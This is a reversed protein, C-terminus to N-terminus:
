PRKKKLEAVKRQLQIWESLKRLDTPGRGGAEAGSRSDGDNPPQGADWRLRRALTNDLSPETDDPNRTNVISLCAGQRLDPRKESCPPAPVCCDWRRRAM